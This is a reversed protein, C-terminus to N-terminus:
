EVKMSLEEKTKTTEVVDVGTIVILRTEVSSQVAQLWTVVDTDLEEILNVVVVDVVVLPDWVSVIAWGLLVEVVNPNVTSLVAATELLYLM